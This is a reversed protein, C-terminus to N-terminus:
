ERDGAAFPRGPNLDLVCRKPSLLSDEFQCKWKSGPPIGEITHGSEIVPGNEFVYNALGYLKRSVDNPDLERFHCQLDHLGITGLGLLDMLMEGPRDTIKFFRVNISGPRELIPVDLSDLYEGPDVVQQSHKFVLAIPGAVRIAAELVGHFLRLRVDPEALSAMLETVSVSRRTSRILEAANECRWSQNIDDAYAGPSIDKDAPFVATQIPIEGDSLQVRFDEHVLLLGGSDLQEANITGGLIERATNAIASYDISLPGEFLLQVFQLDM